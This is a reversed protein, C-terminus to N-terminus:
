STSMRLFLFNGDSTQVLHWHENGDHRLICHQLVEVDDGVGEIHAVDLGEAVSECIDDIDPRAEPPRTTTEEPWVYIDEFSPDMSMVFVIVVAFDLVDPQQVGKRFSPVESCPVVHVNLHADGYLEVGIAEAESPSVSIVLFSDEGPGQLNWNSLRRKLEANMGHPSAGPKFCLQVEDFADDLWGEELEEPHTVDPHEQTARMDLYERYERVVTLEEDLYSEPNRHTVYLGAARWRCTLQFDVWRLLAAALSRSAVSGRLVAFWGRCVHALKIVDFGDKVSFWFVRRLVEAPLTSIGMAM